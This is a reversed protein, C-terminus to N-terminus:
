PVAGESGIEHRLFATQYVGVGIEEESGLWISLTSSKICKSFARDQMKSDENAAKKV